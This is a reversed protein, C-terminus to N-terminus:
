NIAGPSPLNGALSEGAEPQVSCQAHMQGAEPALSSDDNQYSASTVYDIGDQQADILRQINGNAFVTSSGAAILLVAALVFKNM